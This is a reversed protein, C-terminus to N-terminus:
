MCIKTTQSVHWKKACMALKLEYIFMGEKQSTGIISNINYVLIHQECVFLLM